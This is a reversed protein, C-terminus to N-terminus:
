NHAPTHQGPDLLYHMTSVGRRREIVLRAGNLTAPPALAVPRQELHLVEAAVVRDVLDRAPHEAILHAAVVLNEVGGSPQSGLHHDLRDAHANRDQYRARSKGGPADIEGVARAEGQDTAGAALAEDRKGPLVADYEVLIRAGDLFLARPVTALRRGM